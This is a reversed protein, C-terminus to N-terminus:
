FHNLKGHALVCPRGTRISKHWEYYNLGTPAVHICHPHDYHEDCRLFLHGMEHICMTAIVDLLEDEPILGRERRFVPADSLFPFLGVMTAGQYPSRVNNDTLATTLGGRAIVYIPMEADAGAIMSNTFVLDAERIEELLVAWHLYSNLRPQTADFFPRGDALPIERLETLRQVFQQHAIEVAAVKSAIPGASLYREIQPLTREGFDRAITARLKELGPTGPLDIGYHDIKGAYRAFLSDHDSFYGALDKHGVERLKVRYGYWGDLLREIKAGLETRQGPKLTPLRRDELYLVRLEYPRDRPLDRLPPLANPPPAAHPSWKGALLAALLLLGALAGPLLIRRATM